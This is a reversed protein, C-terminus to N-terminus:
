NSIKIIPSSGSASRIRTPYLEDILARVGEGFYQKPNAKCYKDLWDRIWNFDKDGAINTTAPDIANYASFFGQVWIIFDNKKGTSKSAYTECRIAGQGIDMGGTEARASPSFFVCAAFFGLLM